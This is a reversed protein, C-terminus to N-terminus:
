EAVSVRIEFIDIAKGANDVDSVIAISGAAGPRGSPLEVNFLYDARHTGVLYRRRGCDGLEGFNCQISIQTEQGEEARAVVNFVARQGAIRELIGQGVDFLVAEGGTGSRIRMFPQGEEEMIDASAGSPAVVSTPDAPSFVTVWDRGSDATGPGLPPSDSEPEFDEETTEVPTNPVSTDPRGFLGTGMVWWGGIALAALVTVVVFMVAWPRRRAESEGEYLREDASPGAAFDPEEREAAIDGITPEVRGFRDRPGPGLRDLSPEPAEISPEPARGLPRDSPAREAPGLPPAEPPQATGAQTPPPPTAAPQTAPAAPPRDRLAPQFEQEIVTIKAKLAERRRQAIDEALDPNAAINRELAAFVSRYVKERFARDDADGKELAGRIAREIADL